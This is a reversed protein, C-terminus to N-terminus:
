EGKVKLQSICASEMGLDTRLGLYTPQFLSGGSFYYLYRVEVLQGVFPIAKNVPISVAGVDLVEGAGLDNNVSVRISRKHQHISSVLVTASDWFKLKLADGGSAPRGSSYASKPNKLVIGERNKLTHLQIFNNVDRSSDAILPVSVQISSAGQVLSSLVGLWDARERFTEDTFKGARSRIIDFIIFSKGMDEGDFILTDSSSFGLASRLSLMLKKTDAAIEDSLCVERGSRNAFMLKDGVLAAMRREGDFKEQLAVTGFRSVVSGIDSISISIANLLQPLFGIKVASAVVGGGSVSDDASVYGKREKSAVLKQFISLAKEHSIPSATKTGAKLTSGTRGYSFNVLYLSSNAAQIVECNYTKDSGSQQNRLSIAPLSSSM